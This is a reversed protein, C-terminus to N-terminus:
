TKPKVKQLGNKTMKIGLVKWTEKTNPIMNKLEGHYMTEQFLTDAQQIPLPMSLESDHYGITPNEYLGAMQKSYCYGANNPKWLVLYQSVSKTHHLAIIYYM